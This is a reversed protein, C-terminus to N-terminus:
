QSTSILIGCKVDTMSPFKRGDAALNRPAFIRDLPDSCESRDYLHLNKLLTLPRTSLTMPGAQLRLDPYRLQHYFNGYPCTVSGLRIQCQNKRAALVEQIVWRRQFWPRAVLAGMAPRNEEAKGAAQQQEIGSMVFAGFEGERFWRTSRLFRLERDGAGGSSPEGLWVSIRSASAFIQDM